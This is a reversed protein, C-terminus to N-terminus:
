TYKCNNSPNASLGVEGSEQMSRKLRDPNKGGEQSAPDEHDGVQPSQFAEWNAVGNMEGWQM